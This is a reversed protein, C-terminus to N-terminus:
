KTCDRAIRACISTVDYFRVFDFNLPSSGLPYLMISVSNFLKTFHRLRNLAPACLLAENVILIQNEQWIEWVVQLM